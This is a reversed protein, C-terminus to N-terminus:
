KRRTQPQLIKHELPISVLDGIETRQDRKGGQLPQVKPEVWQGVDGEQAPQGIQGLKNKSVILQGVDREQAPQSTQGSQVALM